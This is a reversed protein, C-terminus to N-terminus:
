RRERRPDRMRRTVRVPRLARAARQEDMLRKLAFLEFGIGAVLALVSAAQLNFAFLVISLLALIITSPRFM